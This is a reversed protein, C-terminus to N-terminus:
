VISPATKLWLLSATITDCHTSRDTGLDYPQDASEAPYTWILHGVEVGQTAHTTFVLDDKDQVRLDVILKQPECVAGCEFLLPNLQKHDLEVCLERLGDALILPLLGDTQCNQMHLSELGAAQLASVQCHVLSLKKVNVSVPGIHGAITMSWTDKPADMVGNPPLRWYFTTVSLCALDQLICAELLLTDIYMTKLNCGVLTILEASYVTLSRLHQLGVDLVVTLQRTRSAADTFRYFCIAGQDPILTHMDITTIQPSTSVKVERVQHGEHPILYVAVGGGVPDSIRCYTMTPGRVRLQIRLKQFGRPLYVTVHKANHEM